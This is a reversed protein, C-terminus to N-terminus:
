IWGDGEGCRCWGTRRAWRRRLARLATPTPRPSWNARRPRSGRRCRAGCGAVPAPTPVFRRPPPHGSHSITTLQDEAPAMVRPRGTRRREEKKEGRLSTRESAAHYDPVMDGFCTSGSLWDGGENGCGGCGGCGGRLRMRRMSRAFVARYRVKEQELRRGSRSLGLIRSV